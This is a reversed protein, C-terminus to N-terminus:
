LEVELPLPLDTRGSEELDLVRVRARKKGVELIAVTRPLRFRRPGCSGPNVYLRGERHEIAPQHSHGHVILRPNAAEIARRGAPLLKEPKGLQHIVLARLPGLEEVAVEPLTTGFADRDNNGRVAVTPAIAELRRVISEGVVDGAHLIRECGSLVEPLRPDFLGHTDSVLGVRM